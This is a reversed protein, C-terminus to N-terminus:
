TRADHSKVSAVSGAIAPHPKEVRAASPPAGTWRRFAHNFSTCGEYGLLWAVQSLSISPTNIYQLALSRRLEDIVDEFTTGESALKRALTRTSMALRKAVNHRHAQGHPLLKQAENEVAARLSGAATERQKAAEDCIPRLADLLYVDETILPAALSQPSFVMEGPSGGFEIPCGCFRELEWSHTNRAHVMTMSTPHIHRGTIERLMKVVVAVGFEASQTARFRPIGVVQGEVVLDSGRRKLQLRVAENVIRCYRVFLALAEGLDKGASTVYFLLGMERPNVGKALHLGLAPDHLAEAAAELLRAQADASVRIQGKNFDQESLGLRELLPAPDIDRARLVAVAHGAAFGTATPLRSIGENTM